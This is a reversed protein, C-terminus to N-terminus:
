RCEQRGNEKKGEGSLRERCFSQCVQVNGPVTTGPSTLPVKSEETGELAIEEKRGRCMKWIKVKGQKRREKGGM